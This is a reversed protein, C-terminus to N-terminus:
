GAVGGEAISPRGVATFTLVTELFIEGGWGGQVPAKLDERSVRIEVQAAGAEEALTALWRPVREEAYAVGEALSSLDAIGKPLHVRVLHDDGLLRILVRHQLVVGGAVAGVANAVGARAPIVLETALQQSVRPLYAEVPAGVAVLPHPLAMRCELDSGQVAGLARALLAGATPEHEWHPVAEEDSLVKTVLATTVLNAVEEVVRECFSKVSLGMRPALIEAGLRSAEADWLDLRGLVHLADTPTFGSRLVLRQEVLRDVRREALSSYRVMEGLGILSLPGNALAQLLDQDDPPLAAQARRQILAFQGALPHAHDNFQASLASLVQPHADALMCLPVVRRPGVYLKQEEVRVMSDGGLGVTHADVAEVMTRWRGVQAGEPNVRPRGDRLAAIDTTTGGVDVVWVDGRGALHWAGVVSAAPGSLITEIPRRMAWAARVLSGDGKVIMLPAAIGLEDLTHRVTDILEKLLPILSANLAVTTARRISNLRTTLEHGCTVPLPGDGSDTLDEVLARVRLEHDPNRVGFYGSIAFAEVDDRHALIARRVADEDLPVVEDGEVNHGGGVYILNDTVLEREFRYQRILDPDYGILILCVPSGRGEVIANTALTTSLGVMRVDAPPVVREALVASIAERIGISLDHYTTLAKASAMVEGTSQDVL